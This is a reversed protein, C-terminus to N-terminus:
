DRRTPTATRLRTALGTGLWAVAAVTAPVIVVIGGVVTWPVTVTEPGTQRGANFVRFVVWTPAFGTPIGLAIGTLATVAAAAAAQRRMSAPRAGVVDFVDREDRAETAALALTLSVVFLTIALAVAITILQALRLDRGTATRFDPNEVVVNVWEDVDDVGAEPRPADGPEIFADFNPQVRRAFDYVEDRQAATLAEPATVILGSTVIDFGAVRAYEETLVPGYRWNGFDYQPRSSGSEAEVEIIGDHAPYSMAYPGADLDEDDSLRILMTGDRELRDVDDDVLGVTRLWAPDAIRLGALDPWVADSMPDFPAPDYTAVRLPEIEAGPVISALEASWDSVDLDALPELDIVGEGDFMPAVDREVVIMDDPLTPPVALDSRLATDILAAVAVAGGVAVAIAAVVAASRTRSRALGRLALRWSLTARRGTRGVLEVALPTLCCMGSVVGVAGVIVLLPWITNSGYTSERAGFSGMGTLVVGTGALALGIPVLRRPPPGAPRRGALASMVPIRAASRAPVLAAISGAVVSTLAIAVLDTSSVQFGALDHNSIAEALPRAPRMALLGALIGMAAGLAANWSGQLALVRRVVAQTAGNATLQGVTMLQRRASTAFAAAVIIGVAVLALVGGVWGWGIVASEETPELFPDVEPTFGGVRDALLATEAATVDDPLDYVEVTRGWGDAIRAPELDPIVFLQEDHSDRVRGIGVLTWSGSPRILEVTDGIEVGLQDANDATTLIEGDRPARGDLIEIRNGAVPDSLDLDTFSGWLTDTPASVGEATASSTVWLYETRRTGAPLEPSPGDSAAMGIVQADVAIDAAGYRREFRDTWDASQTRVLISGATMLFAPIAILLAVLVTRGPRRRVERRALRAAFWWQALAFRDPEVAPSSPPPPATPPRDDLM